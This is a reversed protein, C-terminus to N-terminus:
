SMLIGTSLLKSSSPVYEVVNLYCRTCCASGTAWLVLRM